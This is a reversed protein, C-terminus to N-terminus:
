GTTAGTREEFMRLAREAWENVRTKSRVARAGDIAKMAEYAHPFCGRTQSGDRDAIQVVALAGCGNGLLCRYSGTKV